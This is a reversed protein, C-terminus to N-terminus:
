HSFVWLCIFGHGLFSIVLLHILLIISLLVIWHGSIEKLVFTIHVYVSGEFVKLRLLQFHLM